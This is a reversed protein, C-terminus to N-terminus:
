RGSISRVLGIAISVMVAAIAVWAVAMIVRGIVRDSRVRSLMRIVDPPMEGVDVDDWDV